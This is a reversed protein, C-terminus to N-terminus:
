REDSEDGRYQHRVRRAMGPNKKLLKGNCMFGTKKDRQLSGLGGCQDCVETKTTPDYSIRRAETNGCGDCKM